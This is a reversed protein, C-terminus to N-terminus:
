ILLVKEFAAANQLVRKTRRAAFLLKPDRLLYWILCREVMEQLPEFCAVCGLVVAAEKAQVLLAEGAMGEDKVLPLFHAPKELLITM